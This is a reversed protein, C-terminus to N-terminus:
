NLLFALLVCQLAYHVAGCSLLSEIDLKKCNVSFKM